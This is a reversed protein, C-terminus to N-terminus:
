GARRRTPGPGRPSPLAMWLFHELCSTLQQQADPCAPCRERECCLHHTRGPSTGCAPCHRRGTWVLRQYRTRERRHIPLLISEVGCPAAWGMDLDCLPCNMPASTHFRSLILGRSPTCRAPTSQDGSPPLPARLAPRHTDIDACISGAASSAGAADNRVGSM